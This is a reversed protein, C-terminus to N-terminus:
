DDRMKPGHRLLRRTKNPRAAPVIGTRMNDSLAYWRRKEGISVEPTMRSDANRANIVLAKREKYRKGQNVAPRRDVEDPYNFKAHRATSRDDDLESDTRYEFKRDGDIWEPFEQAAVAPQEADTEVDSDVVTDALGGHGPPLLARVSSQDAAEVLPETIQRGGM